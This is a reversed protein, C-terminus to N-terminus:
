QLDSPLPGTVGYGYRDGPVQGTAFVVAVATVGLLGGWGGLIFPSEIPDTVESLPNGLIGMSLWSWM